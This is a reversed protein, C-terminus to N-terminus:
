GMLTQLLDLVAQLLPLATYLAAVTGCLEVFGGAASQGADACVTAAIKAVLGIAVTKLLPALVAESLGATQRLSEIFELVPTLLQVLLYVLALCAALSLLLALEPSTKRVVLTLCASVIALVAAKMLLEM